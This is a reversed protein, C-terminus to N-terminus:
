DTSVQLDHYYSGALVSVKSPTYSEDATYDLYIHVKQQVIRIYVSDHMCSYIFVGRRVCM